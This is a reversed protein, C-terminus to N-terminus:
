LTIKRYQLPMWPLNHLIVQNYFNIKWEGDIYTNVIHHGKPKETINNIGYLNYKYDKPYDPTLLHFNGKHIWLIKKKKNEENVFPCNNPCSLGLDATNIHLNSNLQIVDSKICFSFLRDEEDSDRYYICNNPRPKMIIKYSIPVWNRKPKEISVIIERKKILKKILLKRKEKMIM